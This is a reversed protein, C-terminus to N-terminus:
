YIVSNGRNWLQARRLRDKYDKSYDFNLKPRDVGFAKLYYKTGKPRLVKIHMQM